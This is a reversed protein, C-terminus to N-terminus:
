VWRGSEDLSLVASPICVGKGGKLAQILSSPQGEPGVMENRIGQVTKGPAKWM